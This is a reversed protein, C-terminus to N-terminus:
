PGGYLDFARTMAEIAGSCAGLPLHALLDDLSVRRRPFQSDRRVDAALDGIMPIAHNTRLLWRRFAAGSVKRCAPELPAWEGVRATLIKYIDPPRVVKWGDRSPREWRAVESLLMRVLAGPYKRVNDTGDGLRQLIHSGDTFIEDRALAPHGRLVAVAEDVMRGYQDPEIRITPRADITSM